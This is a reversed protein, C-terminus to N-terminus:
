RANAISNKRQAKAGKRSVRRCVTLMTVGLLLCTLGGPEPVVTFGLDRLSQVSTNSLFPNGNLWGTMLENRFDRGLADTIGTVGGGDVENWHFNATGAGGGLEVPVFTGTQSFEANYAAVGFPGTYEGSRQVYLGNSTWLTGLGLLHGIEHTIVDDLRGTNELNPIDATDLQFTGGTSVRFGGQVVSSPLFAQGLTSGPGDIAVSQLTVNIGTQFIGPLYGTVSNEWLSVAQGATAQQSPTFPGVFNINLDWTAQSSEASLACLVLASFFLISNYKKM